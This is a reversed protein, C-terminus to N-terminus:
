VPSCLPCITCLALTIKGEEKAIETLYVKMNQSHYLFFTEGFFTEVIGVNLWKESVFEDFKREM